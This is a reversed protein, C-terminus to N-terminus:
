LWPPVAQVSCCRRSRITIPCVSVRVKWSARLMQITDRREIVVVNVAGIEAAAYDLEDLYPIVSQKYPITVNLGCLDPNERILAPLLSIDPLEYNRYEADIGERRFKEGFYATSFSHVLTRGLLGFRRM